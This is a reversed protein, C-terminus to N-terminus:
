LQCQDGRRSRARVVNTADWRGGMGVEVVAVDVAMDAFWRFASATLLEFRTPRDSLMPELLALAELVEALEEDDIPM